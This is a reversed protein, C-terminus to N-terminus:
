GTNAGDKPLPWPAAPDVSEDIAVVRLPGGCRACEPPDGPGARGKTRKRRAVRVRQGEVLVLQLPRARWKAAAGPALAGHYSVRHVHRAPSLAVLRRALEDKSFEVHTSGDAFPRALRHVVRGEAGPELDALALPSRVLYRTLAALSGRAAGDIREMVHVGLGDHRAGKGVRRSRAPALTDGGVSEVKIRRVATAAVPGAVLAQEVALRWLEDGAASARRRRWRALLAERLSACLLALEDVTPEGDMPVFEDPGRGTAVYGGDLVLAHVHVDLVLARSARHVLSIAGCQLRASEKTRSRVLAFVKAILERSLERVLRQDIASATRLAGPLTLVWHRVPVRPIVRLLAAAARERQECERDCRGACRFRVAAALGCRGCRLHAEGACPLRAGQWRERVEAGSSVAAGGVRELRAEDLGLLDLQGAISQARMSM